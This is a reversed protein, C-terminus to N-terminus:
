LQIVVGETLKVSKILAPLGEVLKSIAMTRSLSILLHVHDDYGGVQHPQCKCDQSRTALYSHLQERIGNTIFPIRNKTSFVLHVLINALAQPM